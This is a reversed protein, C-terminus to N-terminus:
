GLYEARLRLSFQMATAGVSAYGSTLFNINSSAKITVTVAGIPLGGGGNLAGFSGVTNASNLATAFLTEVISTDGDTYVLELQPLTSSTTAARTVVLYFSLRYVGLGSAPVAYLLTSGIDAQQATLTVTAVISTLSGIALLVPPTTTSLAALTNLNPSAGVISYQIPGVENGQPDRFTVNYITNSPSINDNGWLSQSFSGDAASQTVVKLNPFIGTGSVTIPNGTGLNALQFIVFGQSIAGNTLAKLNGTVTAPSPM